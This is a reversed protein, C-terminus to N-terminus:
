DATCGVGPPAVSAKTTFYVVLAVKESVAVVGLATAGPLWPVEVIVRVDTLPYLRGTVSLQETAPVPVGNGVQPLKVVFGRVGVAPPAVVVMAILVVPGLPAFERGLDM